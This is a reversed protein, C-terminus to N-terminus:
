IYIYLTIPFFPPSHHIVTKSVSECCLFLELELATVCSADISGTHARARRACRFNVHALYIGLFISIYYACLRCFPWQSLTTPMLAESNQMAQWGRNGQNKPGFETAACVLVPKGKVCPDLLLSSWPAFIDYINGSPPPYTQHGQGSKKIQSSGPAPVEQQSSPPRLQHLPHIADPTCYLQHDRRRKKSPKSGSCKNDNNPQAQQETGTNKVEGWDNEISDKINNNIIINNDFNSASGDLPPDMSDKLSQIADGNKLDVGGYSTALLLASAAAISSLFLIQFLFFPRM